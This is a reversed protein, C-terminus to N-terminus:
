TEKLEQRFWDLWRQYILKSDLSGVEQLVQECILHFAQNSSVVWPAELVEPRNLETALKLMSDKVKARLLINDWIADWRGRWERVRRAIADLVESEGELLVDTPKLRDEKASYEMLTVFAGEAMPDERWRKRIETLEVVRRFRRLGDPSRLLLCTIIVDIAKFSAPPVGLDHVVRDYVAYPSEGHITGAVVNALAGIRMAEFLAKAEWSRVEGLILVSEGLRLATRLAEEPAMETEVRTIVSRTKLRTINYGLKRLEPVPLELTNHALINECVFNECGPVSLDYVYGEHKVKRIGIVEDWLIDSQPLSDSSECSFPFKFITKQLGHWYDTACNCHSFDVCPKLEIKIEQSPIANTIDHTLFKGCLERLRENKWRQLFGIHGFAKLSSTSISTKLMGVRRKTRRLIIGWNLLLTQLDYLMSTPISISIENKAICANSSFLGRLVRAMQERSLNFVWEPIKKSKSHRLQLIDKFVKHLCASYIRASYGDSHCRLGLSKAAKTVVERTEPEAISFIVAGKDYRGDALWLGVVTLFEPTLPITAPLSHGRQACIRLESENPWFNDLKTAVNIPLIQNRRWYAIASNSYGLGKGIAQIRKWHEHFLQELSSGKLYFGRLKELHELLNLKAVPLSNLHLIRPVAIRDGLKLEKVKVPQLVSGKGKFLSHDGTVRIRRGSSTRVEYVDKNVKHRIFHTVKRLVLKGRKNIAFVKICEKIKKDTLVERGEKLLSKHKRMLEDVLTGVTTKVFKGGRQVIIRANGTVSDESVVIRFKPLIETMVSGLLSSKGSSRGGAILMARGGDILFSLLGAFLPDFFKVRMFLPFTWPKARHRRFAFGLGYPSLTRTIACVRARGGPVLLETDLVPNAEDLPRGSYLRFRTAWADADEQTPILNTECEEYDSHYVYIPTSGVPPNIYIDQVREDALLLELVGFGATYRVLIQALESIERSSLEMGMSRALEAILSKGIGLFLERIREPELLETEAPKHTALQRKADDLLTSRAEDLVFEPPTLHYVLTAKGPVKWIEVGIGNVKYSELCQGHKPPILMFRTFMFNPRIVPHFLERYISRDGPRYRELLPLARQILTCKELIQQMPLLCRQLYHLHSAREPLAQQAARKTREILSQLRIWAGVPDKRLVEAVLFQLETLRAAYLHEFGPLCLKSISLLKDVNLIRYYASAIEALSQVEQLGYEAVRVQALAVKEVGRVELLKDVTKAMCVEFDELSAGYVCGLCDVRLTRDVLEYECVM